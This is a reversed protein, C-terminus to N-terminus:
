RKLNSLSEEISEISKNSVTRLRGLEQKLEGLERELLEVETKRDDHVITNPAKEEGQASLLQYLASNEDRFLEEFTGTEVMKKHDLVIIRTASKITSIRHAISITTLGEINRRNITRTIANESESDLASTAEDLILIKPRLILARALAIRQKQGGSLQTGKPGIVTQLGQPFTQLFSGCNALEVARQVEEKSAQLYGYKINEEITGSFLLPEQQVVGIIRRYNKLNYKRIDVGDLEISGHVPDYFRLLLHMITSKGSGSPGVVCVHEGPRIDFSLGKFILSNPRTPYYFDINEFAIKGKLTKHNVKVGKTAPILPKRDNLEFVRAAAGLGKMLESYFSSVGFMSLGTYVAYMMFSTLDGVSIEGRRVMSTGVSLLLLLACNGVFGTTGFFLGTYKAEQFGVNFVRRVQKSFNHIETAEGNFSQVTKTSSLSEEAVKTLTGVEEQLKRSISRVKRGYFIAGLALPPALLMLYGTLKLSVLCMMLLGVVGSIGARIGDSLNQTVSRTIIFSDNTLRSILDGVKNYDLFVADQELSKKLIRVRLRAIVREGIVKLLVIRLGNACAGLLFMVGFTVFFTNLPLGFVRINEVDSDVLSGLNKFYGSLLSFFGSSNEEELSEKKSAQTSGANGTDLLKGIVMPLLMSITSSILLCFFALILLRTEPLALTFLKKLSEADPYSKTPTDQRDSLKFNAANTVDVNPKQLTEPRNEADIAKRLVSLSSFRNQLSKQPVRLGLVMSSWPQSTIPPGLLKPRSLSSRLVNQSTRLLRPCFM